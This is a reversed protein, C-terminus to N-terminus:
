QTPSFWRLRLMPFPRKNADHDKPDAPRTVKAEPSCPQDTYIVGPALVCTGLWDALSDFLAKDLNELTEQSTCPVTAERWIPSRYFVLVCLYGEM